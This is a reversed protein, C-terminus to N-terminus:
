RLLYERFTTLPLRSSNIANEHGSIEHRANKHGAIEHVTMHDTLKMDLLKSPGDNEHGDNDTLGRTEM